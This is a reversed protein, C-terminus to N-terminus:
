PAQRPLRVMEDGRKIQFGFQRYWDKLKKLPMKKMGYVQSKLPKVDGFITAGQQDARDILIEMLARGGGKKMSRISELHLHNPGWSAPSMHRLIVGAVPEGRKDYLVLERSDFPNLYMGKYMERLLQSM